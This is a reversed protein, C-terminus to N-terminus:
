QPAVENLRELLRRSEALTERTEFIMTNNSLIFEEAFDRFEDIPRRETM